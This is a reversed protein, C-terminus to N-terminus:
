PQLDKAAKKVAIDAQQNLDFPNIQRFAELDKPEIKVGYDNPDADFASPKRWLRAIKEAEFM